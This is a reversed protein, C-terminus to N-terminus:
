HDIHFSSKGLLHFATTQLDDLVVQLNAGEGRDHVVPTVVPLDVSVNLRDRCCLLSLM